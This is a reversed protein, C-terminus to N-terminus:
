CTMSEVIKRWMPCLEQMDEHDEDDKISWVLHLRMNLDKTTCEMRKYNARYPAM